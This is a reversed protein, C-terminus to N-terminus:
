TNLNKFNVACVMAVPVEVTKDIPISYHGSTTLNLAVEMGTVTAIDNEINIKIAAKKMATRSILLPINSEVVDIKISVAKEAVVAPISFEGKSKLCTGGGFKFM